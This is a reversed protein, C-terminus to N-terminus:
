SFVDFAPFALIPVSSSPSTTEKFMGATFGSFDCKKGALFELGLSNFTFKFM